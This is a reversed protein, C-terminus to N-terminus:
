RLLQALEPEAPQLDLPIRRQNWRHVLARAGIAAYICWIPWVPIRFRYGNAGDAGLASLVFVYLLLTVLMLHLRRDSGSRRLATVVGVVGLGEVAWVVLLGVVLVGDPADGLFYRSAAVWGSQAVQGYFSRALEEATLLPESWLIEIAEGEARRYYEPQRHEWAPPPEGGRYDAYDIGSAPIDANLEETLRIQEADLDTGDRDAIVAAARYWYLNTADIGTFRWSGVEAHNHVSWAGLLVVCPILFAAAARGAAARAPPHRLAAAALIGGVLLPLYYTTPRVYTAGVITLGCGASWRWDLESQLARLGCYAALLLLLTFLTETAILGTQATSVPDLAFTAGALLGIKSSGTARRAVAIALLVSLSSLAAQVIVVATDSDGTVKYIVAIFAPYGPTRQYEPASSGVAVDFDGDDLLSRAPDVYGPTDHTILRRPHAHAVAGVLGIRMVAVALILGAIARRESTTGL